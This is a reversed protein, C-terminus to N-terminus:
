IQPYSMFLEEGGYVTNKGCAECRRRRADPEVGSAEEGCALCAGTLGDSMSQMGLEFLREATLSPHRKPMGM